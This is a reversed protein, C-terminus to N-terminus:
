SLDHNDEVVKKSHIIAGLIAGIIIFYISSFNINYLEFIISLVTVLILMLTPFLKKDMKIIMEIATKVILFAVACKIGKFAYFVYKNNLM